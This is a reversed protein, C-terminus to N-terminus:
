EAEEEEEQEEEEESDQGSVSVKPEEVPLGNSVFEALNALEKDMDLQEALEEDM